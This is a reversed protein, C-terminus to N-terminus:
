CTVATVIGGIITIATPAGACTQTVGNTSGAVYLPSVVSTSAYFTRYRFASSGFDYTNSFNVPIFSATAHVTGSLEITDSTTMRILPLDGTNAANRTYIWAGNPLNIFGGTSPNTGFSVTTGDVKVLTLGNACLRLTNAATATIGTDLDGTAALSPASCDGTVAFNLQGYVTPSFIARGPTVTQAFAATSLLGCLAVLAIHKLVGM